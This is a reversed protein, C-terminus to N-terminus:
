CAGAAKDRIMQILLKAIEGIPVRETNWVMDYLLPDRIDKHFFTKVLEAKAKDKEEGAEKAKDKSEVYQWSRDDKLLIRRGDPGSLEFDARVPQSVVLGAVLLASGAKLWDARKM